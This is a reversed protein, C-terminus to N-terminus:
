SEFESALLDMLLSDHWTGDRGREYQRMIGVRRFGVREYARVARENEVAPDITLRHYGREEFLYRLVSIAEPGLGQGRRAPVVYLEALYCELANTWIGPRFRLVALGHPGDGGLLVTVEGSALLERFREALARAGPTADDFETNFDHLLRGVTEADAAEARRVTFEAM